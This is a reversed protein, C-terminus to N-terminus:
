PLMISVQVSGLYVSGPLAAARSEECVGTSRMPVRIKGESRDQTSAERACATLRFRARRSRRRWAVYVGARAHCVPRGLFTDHVQDYTGSGGDGM